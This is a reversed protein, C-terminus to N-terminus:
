RGLLYWLLVLVGISAVNGVVLWIKQSTTKPRQWEVFREWGKPALQELIFKQMGM